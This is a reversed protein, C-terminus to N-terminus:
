FELAEIRWPGQLGGGPVARYYLPVVRVFNPALPHLLGVAARGDALPYKLPTCASFDRIVDRLPGIGGFRPALYGEAEGDLQLFAAQLAALVASQATQPWDPVGNEWINESAECVLADKSVRWTELRAHGVVDGYPVIARVFGDEPEIQAATIVGLLRTGDETVAALYRSDEAGGCFLLWGDGCILEPMGAGDPLPIQLDRVELLTQEGELLAFGIGQAFRTQRRTPVASKPPVFEAEAVGGPWEVAYVDKELGGALIRGASLTLRRAMPLWGAELPRFELYLAGWASVPVLLPAEASAEGAFRGNVYVMGAVPSSISLIPQM